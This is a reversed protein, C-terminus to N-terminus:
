IRSMANTNSAIASRQQVRFSFGSYPTAFATDLDALLEDLSGTSRAAERDEASEEIAARREDHQSRRPTSGPRM